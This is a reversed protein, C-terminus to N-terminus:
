VYFWKESVVKVVPTWGQWEGADNMGGSNFFLVAKSQVFALRPYHHYAYREPLVGLNPDARVHRVPSPDVHEVAPLGDSRAVTKFRGWKETQDSSVATSLRGRSYGRRIEEASSQNWIILADGTTKLRGACSPVDGSALETPKALSWHDGGDDSITRFIRGVNTRMFMAVRGRDLELLVPEWTAGFGGIGGEGPLPWVMVSGTSRRWTKGLDDSYYTFCGGMAAEYLHGDIRHKPKGRITGHGPGETIGHLDPHRGGMYWYLPLVLRGGALQILDGHPYAVFVGKNQAPGADEDEYRAPLDVAAGPSWSRGEDESHCYMWTRTPTAYSGGRVLEKRSYIMGLRGDRLKLVSHPTGDLPKGGQLYPFPAGWTRAADTSVVGAPGAVEKLSSMGSRTGDGITALLRRDDLATLKGSPAPGEHHILGADDRAAGHSRRGRALPLSAALTAAVFQRRTTRGDRRTM